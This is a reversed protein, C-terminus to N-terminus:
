NNWSMNLNTTSIKVFLDCQWINCTSIKNETMNVSYIAYSYQIYKVGQNKFAYNNYVQNIKCSGLYATGNRSECGTILKYQFSRSRHEPVKKSGRTKIKFLNSFIM